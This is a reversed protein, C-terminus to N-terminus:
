FNFESLAGSVTQYAPKYWFGDIYIALNIKYKHKVKIYSGM